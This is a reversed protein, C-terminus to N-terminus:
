RSRRTSTPTRPSGLFTVLKERLQVLAGHIKMAREVTMNEIGPTGHILIADLRDTQLEKLSKEVAGRVQEPDTTEVKTVLFVERRVDKLAEGLIPQSEMYNGATDFYRLGRDYAYPVLAVREETSLPSGWVSPLAAGGYSLVPLKRDTKGFRRVPLSPLTKTAEDGRPLEVPDSGERAAGWAPVTLPLVGSALGAALFHRRGLRPGSAAEAKQSEM